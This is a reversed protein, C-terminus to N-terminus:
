KIRDLKEVVIKFIEDSDLTICQIGNENCADGNETDRTVLIM